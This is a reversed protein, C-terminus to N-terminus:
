QSPASPDASEDAEEEATAEGEAPEAQKEITRVYEDAKDGHGSETLLGALHLSAPANPSEIWRGRFPTAARRVSIPDSATELDELLQDFEFRGRYMSILRGDADVLLSMPLAMQGYNELISMRLAELIDLTEPLAYGSGYGWGAKALRRKAIMRMEMDDINLALVQLGSDSVEKTHSTLDELEGMCKSCWSAWFNILLPRGAHDGITATGGEEKRYPIEPLRLRAGLVTRASEKGAVSPWPSPTLQSAPHPREFSEVASEGEQLLYRGNERTGVFVEIKGNPWRVGVGEITATEGLGFHLWKSSQSLFGSGATVTKRRLGESTQLLVTAGIADRNSTTGRLLFAVYRNPTTTQNRLFRLRPGTRNATWLDLRGDQDWDVVALGRGDDAYDFGSIPSATAFGEEGGLNLFACNRELGSFSNGSRILRYLARWGQYYGQGSGSGDTSSLSM